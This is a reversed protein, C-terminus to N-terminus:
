YVILGSMLGDLESNIKSRAFVEVDKHVNLLIRKIRSNFKSYPDQVAPGYDKVSKSNTLYSVLRAYVGHLIDLLAYLTHLYDPTFTFHPINLLAFEEGSRSFLTRKAEKKRNFSSVQAPPMPERLAYSELEQTVLATARVFDIFHLMRKDMIEGLTLGLVSYVKARKSTGIDASFFAALEAQSLMITNFWRSKGALAQRLFDITALIQSASERIEQYNGVM